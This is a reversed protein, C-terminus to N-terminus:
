CRRSIEEKIERLVAQETTEDRGLFGGLLNYKGGNSIKMSRKGLLIARSPEHRSLYEYEPLFELLKNM